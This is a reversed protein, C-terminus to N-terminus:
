YQEVPSAGGGSSPKSSLRSNLSPRVAVVLDSTMGHWVVQLGEGRIFDGDWGNLLVYISQDRPTKDFVAFEEVDKVNHVARYFNFSGAFTPQSAVQSVGARRCLDVVVPFAAKIDACARWEHFYSNRLEGAFIVGAVFLIAIGFGRAARALPNSPAAALAAGMLVTALPVVFVSTRDLPLPIKLLRFQLWHALVTLTLVLTLSVALVLRSLSARLQYRDIFLLATYVGAWWALVQFVHNKFAEFYGALLPNVLFPNIEGLSAERISKWTERLSDTGWWLQDRPFRTLASGALVLVIALAPLACASAMRMWTLTGLKRRWLWMAALSAVALWLFGCAYAFAFNACFCLAISASIAIGHNLAASETISNWDQVLIRAFLYLALTLFGLALGYGRAAVLYDMIFPNYVLCMFLAWRLVLGSALLTCLLFAAFVYIIGGVLAPARAALENLGFLSISVRMLISNLVHNNSHPEWHTPSPPAVWYRFTDAEDLTFSQVHARHFIWFLAIAAALILPGHRSIWLRYDEPKQM